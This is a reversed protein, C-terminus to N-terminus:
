LFHILIYFCHLCKKLSPVQNTSITTYQECNKRINFSSFRQSHFSMRGKRKGKVNRTRLHKKSGKKKVLFLHLYSRRLLCPHTKWKSIIHHLFTELWTNSQFSTADFISEQLGVKHNKELEKRKRKMLNSFWLTLFSM